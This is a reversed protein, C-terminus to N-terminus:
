TIVLRAGPFGTQHEYYQRFLEAELRFFSCWSNAHEILNGDTALGYSTGGGALTFSNLLDHLTDIRNEWERDFSHHLIKAIYYARLSQAIVDSRLTAGCYSDRSPWSHRVIQSPDLCRSFSFDIANAAISLLDTRQRHFTVFLLGEVTYNHPHLHTERALGDTRFAGGPMQQKISRTVLVDILQRYVSNQTAAALTDFFLSCKLLFSGSRRSWHSRPGVLRGSGADYLPGLLNLDDDFFVNICANAIEDAHDLFESNGTMAHLNLLGYGAICNDFLAVVQNDFSFEDLNGDGRVYKRSLLLGNDQKAVGVLWDGAAHAMELLQPDRDVHRLNSVLTIFQGASETYLYSGQGSAADLWAYVGGRDNGFAVQIGSKKLWEVSMDIRAFVTSQCQM